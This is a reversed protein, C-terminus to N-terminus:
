LCFVNEWIYNIDEIKIIKYLSCLRPFFYDIEAEESMRMKYYLRWLTKKSKTKGFVPPRDSYKIYYFQFEFKYDSDSHCCEDIIFDIDADFDVTGNYIEKRIEM